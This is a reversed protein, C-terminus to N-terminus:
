SANVQELLAPLLSAVDGRLVVDAREDMYTPTQNVIVIAAGHRAAEVPLRAVPMVELSSGAILMVDCTRAAEEAAEWTQWPLQEGFLVVNPKLVGGCAPCHPVAGTALYAELFTESPYTQYCMTCTATELSGHVELVRVSGARQHLGDINQTILTSFYGAQQLAALAYHAPNPEARLMDQLLPRMWAFFRDPHHRFAALSAVEMPNHKQWLGSNESRFDPIGSPTSVGAGTLIVGRRAQRVIQAAQALLAAEVDVGSM